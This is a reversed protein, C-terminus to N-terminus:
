NLEELNRVEIPVKWFLNDLFETSKLEELSANKVVKTSMFPNTQKKDEFDFLETLEELEKGTM